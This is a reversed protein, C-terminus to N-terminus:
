KKNGVQEAATNRVAEALMAHLEGKGRVKLSESMQANALAVQAEKTARNRRSTARHDPSAM